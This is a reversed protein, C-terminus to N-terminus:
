GWFFKLFDLAATRIRGLRHHQEFSFHRPTSYALPERASTRIDIKRTQPNEKVLSASAREPPAGMPPLPPPRPTISDYLVPCRRRTIAQRRGRHAANTKGSILEKSDNRCETVSRHLFPAFTLLMPGLLRDGGRENTYM